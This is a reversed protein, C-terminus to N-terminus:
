LLFNLGFTENECLHIFNKKGYEIKRNELFLKEKM